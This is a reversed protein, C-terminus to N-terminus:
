FDEKGRFKESYESRFLWVYTNKNYYKKREKDIRLFFVTMFQLSFIKVGMIISRM